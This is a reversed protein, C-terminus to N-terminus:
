FKPVSRMPLSMVLTRAATESSVRLGTSSYTGGSDLRRTHRQEDRQAVDVATRDDGFDTCLMGKIIRDGWALSYSRSLEHGNELNWSSNVM